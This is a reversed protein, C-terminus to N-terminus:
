PYYRFRSLMVSISLIQQKKCGDVTLVQEYSEANGEADYVKSRNAVAGVTMGNLRIFGTVM